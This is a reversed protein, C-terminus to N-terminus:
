KQSSTRSVLYNLTQQQKAVALGTHDLVYALSEDIKRLDAQRQTHVDRVMEGVRLALERNQRRESEDVLARVRKLLEADSLSPQTSRALTVAAPAAAGAPQLESRLQRELAALDARWPAADSSGVDKAVGTKANQVVGANVAPAAPTLWGTRISVGDHDYRVNLNALGAGVGLCLVAAAVQAWVPM